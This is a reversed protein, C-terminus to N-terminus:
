RASFGTSELQEFDKEAVFNAPIAIDPNGADPGCEIRAIIEDAAAEVIKETWYIIAGCIDFRPHLKWGIDDCFGVIDPHCGRARFGATIRDVMQFGYVMWARNSRTLIIEDDSEPEQHYVFGDMGLQACEAEFAEGIQSNQVYHMPPLALGIERNGRDYLFKAAAHIAAVFDHRVMGFGHDDSTTTLLPFRTELLMRHETRLERPLDCIYIVGDVRHRLLDKLCEYEKEESSKTVELLLRYGRKELADLYAEILCGFYQNLGSVVMGITRTKGTRLSQAVISPQYGLEKAIRLVREAREKADRRKGLTVGAVARSATKVPVGAKEAIDQITVM